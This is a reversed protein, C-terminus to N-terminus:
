RVRGALSKASLRHVPWLSASPAWSAPTSSVLRLFAGAYKNIGVFRTTATAADNINRGPLLTGSLVVCGAAVVVTLLSGLATDIKGWLMNKEQMAKDVVASQQFFAMWPAITTGINAMILFFVANTFGGPPLQPIVSGHLIKQGPPNIM